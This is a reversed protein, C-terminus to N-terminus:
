SAAEGPAAGGSGVAAPESRECTRWESASM